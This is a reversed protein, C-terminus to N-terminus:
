FDEEEAGAGAVGFEEGEFGEADELGGVDDEVVGEDAGFDQIENGGGGFTDVDAFAGAEAEEGLM